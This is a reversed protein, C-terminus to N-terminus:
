REVSVVEVECRLVEGGFPHGYDITILREEVDVIRGVMPGSRVLDGRKADIVIEWHKEAERIVGKGLPTQVSQGPEASFSVVVEAEEVSTVKGPLAPDMTFEEGVQPEKGARARYQEKPIRMEKPRQRIRAMRIFRDEPKLGAPLGSSVDLVRKEGVVMGVVKAALVKSVEGEFSRAPPPGPRGQPGGGDGAVVKLSKYERARLFVPAKPLSPDKALDERTTAALEGNRLRCAYHLIVKDGPKVEQAGHAQGGSCFVWAALLAVLCPIKM